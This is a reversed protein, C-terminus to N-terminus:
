VDDAAPLNFIDVTAEEDDDEAHEGADALDGTEVGEADFFKGRRSWVGKVGSERYQRKSIFDDCKIGFSVIYKVVCDIDKSDCKISIVDSNMVPRIMTASGFGGLHVDFVEACARQREIQSKRRKLGKPTKNGKAKPDATAASARETDFLGKTAQPVMECAQASNRLEKLKQYGDVHTLSPKDHSKLKQEDGAAALLLNGFSLLTMPGTISVFPTDQGDVTFASPRWEAGNIAVVPQWEVTVSM